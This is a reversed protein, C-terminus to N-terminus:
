RAFSGYAALALLGFVVFVVLGIASVDSQYMSPAASNAKAAFDLVILLLGIVAFFACVAVLPM